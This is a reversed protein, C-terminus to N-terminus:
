HSFFGGEKNSPQTLQKNTPVQSTLKYNRAGPNVHVGGDEEEEEEERRTQGCIDVGGGTGAMVHPCCVKVNMQKKQINFNPCEGENLDCENRCKSESVDCENYCVSKGQVNIQATRDKSNM